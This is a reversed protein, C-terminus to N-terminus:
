MQLYKTTNNRNDEKYIIFYNLTVKGINGYHLNTKRTTKEKKLTTIASTGLQPDLTSM